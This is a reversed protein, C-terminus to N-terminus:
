KLRTVDVTDTGEVKAKYGPGLKYILVKPMFAYHYQYHYSSQQWIQGNTLKIITESDWGNFAGEVQSEIVPPTSDVRAPSVPASEAESAGIGASSNVPSFGNGNPQTLSVPIVNEKSWKEGLPSDSQVPAFDGFIPRPHVLLVAKVETKAWRPCSICNGDTSVFGGYLEDPKVLVVPLVQSKSWEIGIATGACLSSAAISLALLIAALKKM